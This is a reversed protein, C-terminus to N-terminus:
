ARFAPVYICSERDDHMSVCVICVGVVGLERPNDEKEWFIM